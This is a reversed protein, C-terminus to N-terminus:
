TAKWDSLDKAVRQFIPLWDGQSRFLSLSDYWPSLDGETFWYWPRGYANPLVTWTPVGLGGAVHVTTNSTSIVLDMAATLAAFDDFQHTADIMPDILDCGNVHMAAVESQVDGYQLSVFRIDACDLVPKWHETLSTSKEVGAMPNESRWSIGVLRRDQDSALTKRFNSTRDANAVLFPKSRPFKDVSPRLVAGLESLTAQVDVPGIDKGKERTAELSVVDVDPFSRQFLPVLRPDCALAVRQAKSIVDPLLSTTLIQEGLGQDTWVVLHKDSLDEGRWYPVRLAYQWSKYAKSKLRRGYDAWGEALHGLSLLILGRRHIFSADNEYQECLKNLTELAAEINGEREHILALNSLASRHFPDSEIAKLYLSDHELSIEM